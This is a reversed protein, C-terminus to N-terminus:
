SMEQHEDLLSILTPHDASPSGPLPDNRLIRKFVIKEIGVGCRHAAAQSRAVGPQVVDRAVVLSEDGFGPQRCIGCAHEGM